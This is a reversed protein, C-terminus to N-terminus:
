TTKNKLRLDDGNLKVILSNKKDSLRSYIRVDYRELIDGTDLNTTILTAKNNILRETLVTLLYELTVNKYIPETGLDDIVLFDCTLIDNLIANRESIPSTHCELMKANFSFATMFLASLGRDVFARSMASALFSKGTGTAGIFLMTKFKVDPYKKTYLAMNQYLKTLEHKQTENAIMSLDCDDFTYRANNIIGCEAALEKIFEDFICSCIKNDCVGTGGCKPCTKETTYISDYFGYRKLLKAYNDASRTIEECKEDKGAKLCNFVTEIHTKNAASIEPISFAAAMANQKKLETAAKQQARRKLVRSM